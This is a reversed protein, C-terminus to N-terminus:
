AGQSAPERVLRRYYYHDFPLWVLHFLMHAMMASLLGYQWYLWGFILSAWLNLSIMAGFFIASKECGAALYGPAHGLGFLVGSLVIAVWIVVPSPEGAILAGLWVFLTMLGWRTLVEEVIGGYLLRGWIGLGNRLDEWARLTEAEFRPRFYGYYAAVFVLAGAVAVLISPLLQPGVAPWLPEGAALAEFFPAGLGVRPALATGVAAPIAIFLALQIGSVLLLVPRAPLEQDSSLQGEALNEIMRLNTQLGVFYGPVCVVLLSLFLGWDFMTLGEM